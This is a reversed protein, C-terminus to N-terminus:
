EAEFEYYDRVESPPVVGECRIERGCYGNRTVDIEEADCLGNAAYKARQESDAWIVVTKAYTEIIRVLHPRKNM